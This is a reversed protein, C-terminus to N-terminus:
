DNNGRSQAKTKDQFPYAHGNPMVSDAQHFWIEQQPLPLFIGAADFAIKVRRRFERSVDWQKLPQTMIWVLILLGRDGFDDVGLILPPELILEKWEPDQHMAEAVQHILELAADVDSKYGVPIRVNARSWHSSLNAVIKVESNPITILRGEADRLQTIRLNINEVFGAVGSVDIVDGVAYQDELIIFFGNIADKLLNQSALSLGLGIIGAGALLPGIDIDIWSLAVLIGTVIWVAAVTGKAVRSVTSVRM